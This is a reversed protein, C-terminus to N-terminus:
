QMAALFAATDTHVHYATITGNEIEFISILRARLEKGTARVRWRGRSILVAKSGDIVRDLEAAELVELNGIVLRAFEDFGRLGRFTGVWPLSGHPGFYRVEVRASLIRRLGDRDGERMCRLYEDIVDSSTHQSPSPTSEM